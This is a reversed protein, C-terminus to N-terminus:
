EVAFEFLKQTMDKTWLAGEYIVFNSDLGLKIDKLKKCGEFVGVTDFWFDWFRGIEKVSDPIEISRLSECGWFAGQEISGLRCPLAIESLSKCNEFAFAQIEEVSGPLKITKLNICDKFALYGIRTVGEPIIVSELEACGKFACDGIQTIGDPVVVQSVGTEPIYKRLVMDTLFAM